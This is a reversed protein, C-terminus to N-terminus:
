KTPRQSSRPRGCCWRGAKKPDKIQVTVYKFHAAGPSSGPQAPPYIAIQGNVVATQGENYARVNINEVEIRGYVSQGDRISQIYAAKGQQKGSGHTYVLDDAFARELFAYDKSVQAMFRQRELQEVERVAANRQAGTSEVALLAAHSRPPPLPKPLQAAGLLPLLVLCLAFLLPKM